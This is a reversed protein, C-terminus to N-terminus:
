PRRMGHKRMIRIFNVRDMEALRAAQAINGDAHILAASLYQREFADITRAKAEKFPEVERPKREGETTSLVLSREVHNRLERVNGPWQQELLFALEEPAMEGESDGTLQRRFHNALLPIDETRERLPPMKITVVNLRYFLDERFVGHNVDVRLDRDSAAVVRVDVDLPHDSGVPKVQRRDLARLLKPQMDFPLKAIEDLFLTGGHAEAFAGTRRDTAGTFAGREHGFLESEMLAPSIAGCDVVVFPHGARRSADHISEAALDKGTGSEGVLLVTVDQPAVTELLAFMRRAAASRGLLKGFGDAQSLPLEFRQRRSELRVRSDGIELTDGPEIFASVIRHKSLWTGNTSQLDTCLYGDNLLRISFHNRSVAPDRLVLSATPASGVIVEEDNIALARGRDPGRVVLIRAGAFSFASPRTVRYVTAM